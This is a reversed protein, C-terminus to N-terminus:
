KDGFQRQFAATPVEEFRDGVRVILLGAIGRRELLALGDAPGLVMAATALADATACDAALVTASDLNPGDSAVLVPRGTRPDLTHVVTEGDLEYFSRYNGSTALARVDPGGHLAIGRQVARRHGTPDQIPREVGVTWPEGGAKTGAARVEGGVEVLSDTVGAAALREAVRDVGHGKAIASLNVRVGPLAKKLAPPDLRVELKDFGVLERAADLAEDSPVRSPRADDGFGWLDVLPGVTPDFAGGSEAAIELALATVAATEPSVPFWDTSASANFRSLESDPDWTSMQRNVAALEEEVAAALAEKTAGEPLATVAVSYTTGMTQGSWRVPTPASASACGCIALALFLTVGLGRPAEANDRPLVTM